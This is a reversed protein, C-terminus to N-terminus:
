STVQSPPRRTLAKLLSLLFGLTLAMRFWDWFIWASAQATIEDPTMGAGAREMLPVVGKPIFFVETWIMGAVFLGLALSLWPRRERDPWGFILALLIVLGTPPLASAWFRGSAAAATTGSFHDIVSSPLNGGWESILSIRQYVSAGFVVGSLVIAIWLLIEALQNRSM